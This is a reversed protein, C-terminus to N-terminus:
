LTHRGQHHVIRNQHVKLQHQEIKQIQQKQKPNLTNIKLKTKITIQRGKPVETEQNM